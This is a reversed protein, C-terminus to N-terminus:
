EGATSGLFGTTRRVEDVTIVSRLTGSDNLSRELVLLDGHTRAAIRRAIPHEPDISLSQAKQVPDALPDPHALVFRAMRYALTAKGIGEPGGILWAHAVRGSRYNDLLAAEVEAHGFWVTTERPHPVEDDDDSSRAAGSM